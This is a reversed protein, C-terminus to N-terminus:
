RSTSNPRRANDFNVAVMGAIVDRLAPSLGIVSPTLVERQLPLRRELNSRLSRERHDRAPIHREGTHADTPTPAQPRAYQSAISAGTAVIVLPSWCTPMTRMPSDSKEDEIPKFGDCRYSIELVSLVSYYCSQAVFTSDLRPQGFFLGVSGAVTSGRM